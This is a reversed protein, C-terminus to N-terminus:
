AGGEGGDPRTRVWPRICRVVVPSPQVSGDRTERAGPAEWAKGDQKERAKVLIKLLARAAAPTVVPPEAPLIVNLPERGSDSGAM